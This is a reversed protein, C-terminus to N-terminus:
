KTLRAPWPANPCDYHGPGFGIGYRFGCDLEDLRALEADPLEWGLSQLNQRIRDPKTSKPICVLDKQLSWRILIQAPTKGMRTAVAQVVSNNLLTSGGFPSEFLGTGKAPFTTGSYSDGSGLPSYAMMQIGREACFSRLHPQALYPHLECQNVVPRVDTSECLAALQGETFNCVGVARVKGTKLCQKVMEAWTEKYEERMTIKPNPTGDKSRLGGLSQVERQEFAFPWHMLYLDLYELRLDKLTQALADGIRSEEGACFVHHTNFVKSIVFLDERKVLGEAFCEAMAEGVEPENGYIAAGDLLRCGAGVAAKIADKVEGPKSKWLGLGIRPMSVGNSLKVSAHKSDSMGYRLASQRWYNHLAGVEFDETSTKFSSHVHSM